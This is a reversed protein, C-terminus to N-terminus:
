SFLKLDPDIVASVKQLKDARMIYTKGRFFDRISDKPIGAQRELAV